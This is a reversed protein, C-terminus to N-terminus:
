FRLAVFSLFVNIKVFRIMQFLVSIILVVVHIASPIPSFWVFVWQSFIVQPFEWGAGFINAVLYLVGYILMGFVILYAASWCIPPLLLFLNTQLIISYRAMSELLSHAVPTRGLGALTYMYM